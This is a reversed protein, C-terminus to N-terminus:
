SPHLVDHLTQLLKDATYPKSLFAAVGLGALERTKESQFRTDAVGSCAILRAEPNMTRLVRILTLGDMLPMVLDVLALSIEKGEQAYLGVAQVGDEATRVDYGYRWLLRQTAERITPEDDVGLIREGQGRPADDPVFAAEAIHADPNAPLFVEFRTGKGEESHVTIFGGHSKVISLTTSLGLGSGQGAGKTTFFPDFIKDLIEPRIGTGTDAVTLAVYHGAAAEPNMSAYQEDLSLNSAAMSLVGGEPMGDRANVCLNLLVQRLQTPDGTVPWLEKPLDSRIQISKPFTEQAIGVMEGVLSEMRVAAREGEVGRGLILLQKVLDAGRRASLEITALMKEFEAQSLGWRLMPVSILIPALVNNLDHAVGSALRGVSEMRQARLAQSELRKTETIDTNIVLCRKPEGDSDRLLTWRSSVRVKKGNSTRHEFEGQWQGNKLVAAKAAEFGALDAFVKEHMKAGVCEATTWGYLRQAGLSWFQIRDELDRVIIADPALELLAAQERLREEVVRRERREAAQQLARRVASGLGALKSKPVYDSAGNRLTEIAADEGLTGSVFLFPVDPCKSRAMSLARMGNFGPSSYDACILDVKGEDLAAAFDTETQVRAIACGIGEAEISARILEAHSPEDELALIRLPIKM